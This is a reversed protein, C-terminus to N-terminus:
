KSGECVTRGCSASSQSGKEESEEGEKGTASSRKQGKKQASAAM